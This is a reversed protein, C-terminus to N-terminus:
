FKKARTWPKENIAVICLEAANFTFLMVSPMKIQLEQQDFFKQIWEFFFFGFFGHKHEYNKQRKKRKRLSVGIGGVQHISLLFCYGMKLKQNRPRANKYSNYWKIRKNDDDRIKVQGQTVFWDTVYELSDPGKHVAKDCMEQTKLHDPVCDLTYPNCGVAKNCMGQNKLNDPISKLLWPERHVADNCM